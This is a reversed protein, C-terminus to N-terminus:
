SVNVLGPGAPITGVPNPRKPPYPITTRRGFRPSPIPRAAAASMRPPYPPITSPRSLMGKMFSVADTDKSRWFDCFGAATTLLIPSFSPCAQVIKEARARRQRNKVAVLICLRTEAGDRDHIAHSLKCSPQDAISRPRKSSNHNPTTIYREWLRLPPPTHTPPRTNVNQSPLPTHTNSRKGRGVM